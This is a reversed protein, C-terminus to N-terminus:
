HTKIIFDAIQEKIEAIDTKIQNIDNQLTELENKNISQYRM